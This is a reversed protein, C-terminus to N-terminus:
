ERTGQSGGEDKVCGKAMQMERLGRVSEPDSGNDNEDRMTNKDDTYKQLSIINYQLLGTLWGLAWVV